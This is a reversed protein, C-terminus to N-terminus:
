AVRVAPMGDGDWRRFITEISKSTSIQAINAARFEERLRAIEDELGKVDQGSQSAAPIYRVNSGDTRIGVGDPSYAVASEAGISGNAALAQYRAFDVVNSFATTDSLNNLASASATASGTVANVSEFVKAFADSLGMLGAFMKQGSTTSLDQAEVLARFQDRSVPLSKVGLQTMAANVSKLDNSHREADSYYNQYYSQLQTSMSQLGGMFAVLNERAGDSALGVAGFTESVEKGMMMAITNTAAFVGAVRQFTQGINESGTALAEFDTAVVSSGFLQLTFAENLLTKRMEALLGIFTVLEQSTGSFGQVLGSLMNDGIAAFIAAYRDRMINIPASSQLWDTHEMGFDYTNGSIKALNSQVAKVQTDTLSLTTALVTDVGALTEAFQKFGAGMESDSFWKNETSKSYGFVSGVGTVPNAMKSASSAWNGQRNTDGDEGGFISYAALAALGAWGLGPIAALGAEIGAGMASTTVAAVGDAIGAGAMAANTVLQASYASSAAGWIGSISSGVSGLSSLIGSSSGGVGAAQAAGTVGLSGGVSSTINFLWKKVTMDYLLAYLSNKLVDRLREFASKGSNFISVFTEKAVSDIGDWTKKFAATEDYNSKAALWDTYSQRINKQNESGDVALSIIKEWKEKEIALLAEARAKDDLISEANIKRTEDQLSLNGKYVSDYLAVRQSSEDAVAKKKLEADYASFEADLRASEQRAVNEQDIVLIGALRQTINKQEIATLKITGETMDHIIGVATKQTNTLATESQSQARLEADIKGIKEILKDYDSITAPQAKKVNMEDMKKAVAGIAKQLAEYQPTDRKGNAVLDDMASKFQLVERQYQNLANSGSTYGQAAKLAIATSASLGKNVADLAPTINRDDFAWAMKVADMNHKSQAAINEGIQNIRNKAGELDGTVAMAMASIGGVISEAAVYVGNKLAYFAATIEAMTYRFAGVATPFGDKLFVSLDTLIPMIQDAWARSFGDSTKKSEANFEDMASKYDDAAKQTSDGIGLNFEDIRSKAKATEGAMKEIADSIEDYSGLGLAVAAANKAVGDTYEDLATQANKLVTETGLLKGNQDLYEVGLAAMALQNDSIAQGANALTESLSEQSERLDDSAKTLADINASKYSEGTFLGVVFSVAKFAAYIAGVVAASVGAALAVGWIIAQKETFSKFDEWITKAADAAHATGAGVVYALQDRWKTLSESFESPIILANPDLKLAAISKQTEDAAIKAVGFLRKTEEITKSFTSARAKEADEMAKISSQVKEMSQGIKGMAGSTAQNADELDKKLRTMDAMMQIELQGVIM